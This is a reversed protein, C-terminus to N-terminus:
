RRAAPRPPPSKPNPLNRRARLTTYQPKPAATGAAPKRAAAPATKFVPEMKQIEKTGSQGPDMQSVTQNKEQEFDRLAELSQAALKREWARDMAELAAPPVFQRAYGFVMPEDQGGKRIRVVMGPRNPGSFLWAAGMPLSPSSWEFLFRADRPALNICGHSKPIGFDDHWYAGHLAQGKWFFMSWPVSSALYQEDAGVENKMDTQGVKWYIRFVGSKTSYGEKGTSVATAFVPRHEEYAVLTQQELDVDLWKEGKRLGPPLPKQFAAAVDRAAVWRCDGVRYWRSHGVTKEGLLQLPKRAPSQGVSRGGPRDYLPIPLNERRPGKRIPFGLPLKLEGLMVGSFTSPNHRAISEVPVYQDKDTKWYNIGDIKVFRKFQLYFGAPHTGGPKQAKVADRSPFWPAGGLRVYAYEGPTLANEPVVPLIKLDPPERDPAFASLCVWSSLGVRLFGERCGSKSPTYGVLPLRTRPEIRGLELGRTSPEDYIRAPKAASLSSFWAGRRPVRSFAAEIAARIADPESTALDPNDPLEPVSTQANAPYDAAKEEEPPLCQAQPAGAAGPGVMWFFLTAILWKKM